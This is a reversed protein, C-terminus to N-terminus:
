KMRALVAANQETPAGRQALVFPEEVAVVGFAGGQVMPLANHLEQGGLPLPFLLYDADYIGFRLTYADPRNSVHAVLMESAVIKARPPVRALIARIAHRRALDVPSSGFAYPGFGGRITNRQIFAGFQYTCVLTGAALAV